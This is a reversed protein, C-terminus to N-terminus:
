PHATLSSLFSIKLPNCKLCVEPLGLISFYTFVTFKSMKEGRIHFSTLKRLTPFKFILLMGPFMDLGHIKRLSFEGFILYRQYVFPECLLPPPIKCWETSVVYLKVMQDGCPVHTNRCIGQNCKRVRTPAPHDLNTAGLFSHYQHIEGDDMLEYGTRPVQLPCTPCTQLWSLCYSLGM